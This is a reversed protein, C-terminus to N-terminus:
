NTGVVIEWALCEAERRSRGADFELIGAREDFDERTGRDLKALAAALRERWEKDSLIKTMPSALLALAGSPLWPTYARSAEHGFV